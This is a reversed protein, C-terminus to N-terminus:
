FKTCTLVSYVYPLNYTYICPQGTAMWVGVYHFRIPQLMVVRDVTNDGLLIRGSGKDTQVKIGVLFFEVSIELSKVEKFSHLDSIAYSSFTSTQPFRQICLTVCPM